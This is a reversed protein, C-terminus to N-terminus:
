VSPEKSRWSRPSNEPMEASARIDDRAALAEGPAVRPGPLRSSIPTRVRSSAPTEASSLAVSLAEAAGNRSRTRSPRGLPPHFPAARRTGPLVDTRDEASLSGDGRVDLRGSASALYGAFIRPKPWTFALDTRRTTGSIAALRSANRASPARTASAASYPECILRADKSARKALVDPHRPPTYRLTTETGCYRFRQWGSTSSRLDLRSPRVSARAPRNCCSGDRSWRRSRKGRRSM